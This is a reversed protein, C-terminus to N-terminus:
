QVTVAEGDAVNRAGDIILIDGQNLGGTVAVDEGRTEGLTVDRRRAIGDVVLFVYQETQGITVAKLPVIFANAAAPDPQLPIRVEVFTEPILEGNKNDFVIEVPVKKSQENAVAEIRSVIATLEPTTTATDAATQAPIYAAQGVTIRAIDAPPLQVEVKVVNTTAVHAVLAGPAVEEGVELPVTTVEGSIPATIMLDNQQARVINVQAAASNAANQAATIQQDRNRRASELAARANTLGSTALDLQKEASALTGKLADTERQNVTELGQIGQLTAQANATATVVNSRLSVMASQQASLAAAGFNPSTTTNDLVAIVQSVLAQAAQLAAIVAQLDREITRASPNAADLAAYTATLNNYMTEAQALAGPNRVSLTEEINPLQTGTDDADIIYDVQDLANKVTTVYGDYATVASTRRDNKTQEQVAQANALSNQANSVALRANEVQQEATTVGVTAQTVATDASARVAALTQLANTYGIQAGAVNAEITANYLQAIPQGTSVRDGATVYLGTLTGATRATLRVSADAKVTGSVTVAAENAGDAGLVRVGVTKPTSTATIPANANDSPQNGFLQWGAIAIGAVLIAIVAPIIVRPNRYWARPKPATGTDSHLTHITDM